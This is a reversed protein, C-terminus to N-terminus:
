VRDQIGPVQPRSWCGSDRKDKCHRRSLSHFPATRDRFDASGCTVTLQCVCVWWLSYNTLLLLFINIFHYLPMRKVCLILTPSPPLKFRLLIFNRDLVATKFTMYPLYFSKLFTWIHSLLIQDCRWLGFHSVLIFWQAWVTKTNYTKKGGISSPNDTINNSQKFFFIWDEFIKSNLNSM